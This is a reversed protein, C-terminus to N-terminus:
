SCVPSDRHEGACLITITFIWLPFKSMQNSKASECDDKWEVFSLNFRWQSISKGTKVQDLSRAIGIGRPTENLFKFPYNVDKKNFEFPHIGQALFNLICESPLVYVHDNSPNDM